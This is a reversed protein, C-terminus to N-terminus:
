AAVGEDFREKDIHYRAEGSIRTGYECRAMWRDLWRATKNIPYEPKGTWKAFTVPPGKGQRRWHRLTRITVHLFQAQEAESRSSQKM